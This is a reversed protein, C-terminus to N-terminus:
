DNYGVARSHPAENRSPPNISPYPSLNLNKSNREDNEIKM